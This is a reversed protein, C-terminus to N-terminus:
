ILINNIIINNIDIIELLVNRWQINAMINAIVCMWYDIIIMIISVNCVCM